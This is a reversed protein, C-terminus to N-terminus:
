GPTQTTTELSRDLTNRMRLDPSILGLNEYYRITDRTFGSKKALQGILM